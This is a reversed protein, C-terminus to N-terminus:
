RQPVTSICTAQMCNRMQNQRVKTGKNAKSKSRSSRTSGICFFLKKSTKSSNTFLAKSSWIRQNRPESYQTFFIPIRFFDCIPLKKSVRELEHFPLLKFEKDRRDFEMETSEVRMSEIPFVIKFYVEGQISHFYEFNGM